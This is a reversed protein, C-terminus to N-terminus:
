QHAVVTLEIPEPPAAIQNGLEDWVILVLRYRGGAVEPVRTPFVVFCREARDPSRDEVADFEEASVTEGVEDVWVLGGAIRSRHLPPTRDLELEAVWEAVECYVLLPDGSRFSKADFGVVRGLGRVERCLQTGTLTLRQRDAGASVPLDLGEGGLPTTSVHGGPAARNARCQTTSSPETFSGADIDPEPLPQLQQESPRALEAPPSNWDGAAIAKSLPLELSSLGRDITASPPPQLEAALWITELPERELSVNSGSEGAASDKATPHLESTSRILESLQRDALRSGYDGGIPKCGLALALLLCFCVRPM